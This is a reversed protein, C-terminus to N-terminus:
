AARSQPVASISGPVVKAGFETILRQVLPDNAVAKEAEQQRMAKHAQEVAHATEDGTAGYEINLRIVAGFHESLVTQLRLRGASDAQSLIAVRLNVQNGETGAWESQHALQAAWGTLPLSAALAPWDQATMGALRPARKKKRGGVLEVPLTDDQVLGVAAFDDPPGDFEPDTMGVPEFRADDDENYPQMTEFHDSPAAAATNHSAPR